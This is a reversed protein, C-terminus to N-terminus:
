YILIQGNVFHGVALMYFYLFAGKLRNVTEALERNKTQLEENAESVCM